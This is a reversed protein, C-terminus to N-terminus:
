QGFSLVLLQHLLVIIFLSFQFRLNLFHFLFKGFFFYISNINLMENGQYALTFLRCFNGIQHKSFENVLNHYIFCLANSFCPCLLNINIEVIDSLHINSIRFFFKGFYLCLFFLNFRFSQCSLTLTFFCVSLLSLRFFESFVTSFDYFCLYAGMTM